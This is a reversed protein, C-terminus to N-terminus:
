RRRLLAQALVACATFALMVWGLNVPGQHSFWGV